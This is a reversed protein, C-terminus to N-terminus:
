SNYISSDRANLRYIGQTRLIPFIHIWHPLCFWPSGWIDMNYDLSSTVLDYGSAHSVICFYILYVLNDETIQITWHLQARVFPLPLLLCIFNWAHFSRWWHNSAKFVSPPAVQWAMYFVGLMQLPCGALFCPDWSQMWLFGFDTSLRFLLFDSEGVAELFFRLGAGAEIKRPSVQTM